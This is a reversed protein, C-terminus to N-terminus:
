SRRSVGLLGPWHSPVCTSCPRIGRRHLERSVVPLTTDDGLRRDVRFYDAIDYGHASSEFVPGLLLANVGFEELYDIWRTLDSLRHAAPGDFSNREPAGFCGLPFLHYFVADQPWNNMDCFEVRHFGM